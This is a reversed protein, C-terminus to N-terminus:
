KQKLQCFAVLLMTESRHYHNKMPRHKTGSLWMEFLDQVKLRQCSFYFLDIYLPFAILCNM